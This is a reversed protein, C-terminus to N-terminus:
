ATTAKAFDEIFTNSMSKDINEISPKKKKFELKKKRYKKKENKKRAESKEKM